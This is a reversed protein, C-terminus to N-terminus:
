HYTWNCGWGEVNNKISQNSKKTQQWHQESINRMNFMVLLSSDKTNKEIYTEMKEDRLKDEQLKHKAADDVKMNVCASFAFTLIKVMVLYRKEM